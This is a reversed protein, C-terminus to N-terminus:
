VLLIGKAPESGVSGKDGGSCTSDEGCSCGRGDLGENGVYEEGKEIPCFDKDSHISGNYHVQPSIIPRDCQELYTLDDHEAAWEIWQREIHVKLMKPQPPSTFQPVWVANIMREKMEVEKPYEWKDSPGAMKEMETCGRKLIVEPADKGFERKIQEEVKAFTERAGELGGGLPCYWFSGWGGYHGSYGRQEMGTKSPLDLKKQLAFMKYAEDLNRPRSVVKWCNVCGRPLIKYFVFMIRTWFGCTRDEAHKAHLWPSQYSIVIKSEVQGEKNIWCSGRELLGRIPALVDFFCLDEYLAM